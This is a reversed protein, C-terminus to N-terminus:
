SPSREKNLDKSAKSLVRDVDKIDFRITRKSPRFCPLKGSRVWLRVTEAHVGFRTALDKVTVLNKM